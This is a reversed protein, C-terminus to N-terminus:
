DEMQRLKSLIAVAEAEAAASQLCEAGASDTDGDTSAAEVKAEPMDLDINASKFASQIQEIPLLRHQAPVPTLTDEVIPFSKLMGDTERKVLHPASGPSYYLAEAELLPKVMAWYKSSKDLWDEVWVGRDDTKYSTRKGIVTMGVDQDLGHHFLAPVTPYKDLWLETSKTFYDGQLDRQKKDGWLLLYGGVTVGIADESIMKVALGPGEMPINDEAKIIENPDMSKEGEGRGAAHICAFIAQVEDGTEELVQNGAAICKKKEEDSWNKAPPPPNEITWPM